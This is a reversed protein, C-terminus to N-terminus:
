EELPDDAEIQAEEEEDEESSFEEYEFPKLNNMVDTNSEIYSALTDGLKYLFPATLADYDVRGLQMADVQDPVPMDGKAQNRRLLVLKDM